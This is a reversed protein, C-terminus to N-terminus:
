LSTSPPSKAVGGMYIVACKVITTYSATTASSVLPMGNYLFQANSDGGLLQHYWSDVLWGGLELQGAPNPTTKKKFATSALFRVPLSSDEGEVLGGCSSKDQSSAPLFNANITSLGGGQLYLRSILMRHHHKGVKISMLQLIKNLVRLRHTAYTSTAPLQNIRKMEEHVAATKEEKGMQKWRPTSSQTNTTTDMAEM